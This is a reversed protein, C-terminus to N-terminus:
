SSTGRRSRWRGWGSMSRSRCAGLPGARCVGPRLNYRHPRAVSRGGRDPLAGCGLARQTLDVVPVEVGPVGSRAGAWSSSSAAAGGRGQGRSEGARPRPPRVRPDLRHRPMPGPAVDDLGLLVRAGRPLEHTGLRGRARGDASWRVEEGVVARNGPDMAPLLGDSRPSSPDSAPGGRPPTGGGRPRITSPAGTGLGTAPASLVLSRRAGAGPADLRRHRRARRRVWGPVPARAM